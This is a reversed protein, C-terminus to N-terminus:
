QEGRCGDGCCDEAGEYSLPVALDLCDIMTLNDPVTVGDTKAEVGVVSIHQRLVGSLSKFLLSSGIPSALPFTMM